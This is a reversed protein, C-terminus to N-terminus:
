RVEPPTPRDSRARFSSLYRRRPLRLGSKSMDSGGIAFGRHDRFATTSVTAKAALMLYVHPNEITNVPCGKRWFCWSVGRLGAGAPSRAGSGDARGRIGSKAPTAGTTEAAHIAASRDAPWGARRPWRGAGVSSKRRMLWLIAVQTYDFRSGHKGSAIGASRRERLGVGHCYHVAVCPRM